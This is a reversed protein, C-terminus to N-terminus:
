ADGQWFLSTRGHLFFNHKADGGPEKRSVGIKPLKSKKM